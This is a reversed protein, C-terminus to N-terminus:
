LSTSRYGKSVTSKKLKTHKKKKNKGKQIESLRIQFSMVLSMIGNIQERDKSRTLANSAEIDNTSNDIVLGQVQYLTSEFETM